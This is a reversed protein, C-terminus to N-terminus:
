TDALPVTWRGVVRADPADPAPRQIAVAARHRPTPSYQEFQWRRADDNLEPAIAIRIPRRPLQFAFKGLPLSLGMGRAKIYAEKLTWYDFFRDRQLEAPLARLERIEDEAFFRDAIDVTEGRRAVDEVDIGVEVDRAVILAVLGATNSLNFRLWPLGHVACLGPRGHPGPEFTWESPEVAAYRSLTARVLARTLLYEQRHQDFRYRAHREAEAPALLALYASRQEATLPRAPDTWWM